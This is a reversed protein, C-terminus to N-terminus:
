EILGKTPSSANAYRLKAMRGSRYAIYGAEVALRMAKAMQVPDKAAAIGTNMLVGDVGLEMAIAADSATGVGADVIVPISVAEKIFEINTKNLIGQGSGIPSALPMVCACGIDELKKAMVPDDGFYPMVVFGEKILVKAAELTQENDPMLTKKDGIVELKILETQCASRALRSIRIAEEATFCGATNPLLQYKKLDIHDLLTPESSDLNVRRIAVTVLDTGSAELAEEMVEFSSYKGTGVILRSKFEFRGIKLTDETKEIVQSM